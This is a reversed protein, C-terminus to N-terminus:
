RWVRSHKSKLFALTMGMGSLVTGSDSASPGGDSAGSKSLRSVGCWSDTSGQLPDDDHCPTVQRRCGIVEGLIATLDSLRM